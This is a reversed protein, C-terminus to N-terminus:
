PAPLVLVWSFGEKNDKAQKSERKVSAEERGGACTRYTSVYIHPTQTDERAHAHARPRQGSWRSCLRLGFLRALGLINSFFFVSFARARTCSLSLFSPFSSFFHPLASASRVRWESPWVCVCVRFCWVLRSAAYCLFLSRLPSSM